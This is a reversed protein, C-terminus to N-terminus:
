TGKPPWFLKSQFQRTTMMVTCLISATPRSMGPKQRPLTHLAARRFMWLKLNSDGDIATTTVLTKVLESGEPFKGRRCELTVTAEAIPKGTGTELVVGGGGSM